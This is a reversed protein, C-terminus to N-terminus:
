SGYIIEMAKIRESNPMARLDDLSISKQPATKTGSSQTMQKTDIKKYASQQGNAIAKGFYETALEDIPVEEGTDSNFGIGPTLALKLIQEKHAEYVPNNKLYDNLEAKVGNLAEQQEKVLLKQELASVKDLVPALPNNAYRQQQEQRERQILADKIQQPSMGTQKELLNALEAKQGQEGLKHELEQHAKILEEQTKYKGALLPAEVVEAENGDSVSDSSETPQTDVSSTDPSSTAGDSGVPEIEDITDM